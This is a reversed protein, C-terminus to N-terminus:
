PLIEGSLTFNTFTISNTTNNAHPGDIRFYNTGLPSGTIPHPIGPNGLFGPPAQPLVAPDWKLFATQMMQSDLAGRFDCPTSLCGVDITDFITGGADTTLVRSGYPHTITYNTNADLKTIKVRIRSFLIQDGPLTLGQTNLFTSELALVLTAKGKLGSGVAVNAVSAYAYFSEYPYNSGVDAVLPPAAFNPITAICMLANDYCAQIKVGTVDQYYAPYGTRLDIPGVGAVAAGLIHGLGSVPITHPTGAASNVIQVRASRAGSVTPAFTVDLVCTGGPILVTGVGCTNLPGFAFDGPHLGIFSFGTMTLNLTGLNSVTLQQGLSVTGIDQAPFYLNNFPSSLTLFDGVPVLAQDQSALDASGACAGLALTAALVSLKKM